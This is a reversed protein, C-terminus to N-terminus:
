PEAAGVLAGLGAADGVVDARVGGRGDDGDWKGFAGGLRGEHALDVPM